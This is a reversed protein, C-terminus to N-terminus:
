QDEPGQPDGELKLIEVVEEKLNPFHQILMNGADRVGDAYAEGLRKYNQNQLIMREKAAKANVAQLEEAAANRVRALEAAHEETLHDLLKAREAEHQQDKMAVETAHDQKLKTIEAMCERVYERFQANYGNAEQLQGRLEAIKANAAVLDNKLNENEAMADWIDAADRAWLGPPPAPSPEGTGQASFQCQDPLLGLPMPTMDVSSQQSPPPPTVLTVAEPTKCKGPPTNGAEATAAAPARAEQKVTAQLKALAVEHAVGVPLDRQSLFVKLDLGSGAVQLLRRGTDTNAYKHKRVDARKPKGWKVPCKWTTGPPSQLFFFRSKWGHKTPPNGSTFLRPHTGDTYTQLHYWGAPAGEHKHACLTFFYGFASVLPEVGADHCLLVFAAMYKLYFDHLPFRMGAELAAAYVCITHHSGAAPTDCAALPGLVNASLPMYGAPVGHKDCPTRISDQTTLTSTIAEAAPWSQEAGGDSFFFAYTADDLDAAAVGLDEVEDTAM